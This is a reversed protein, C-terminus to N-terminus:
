ILADLIQMDETAIEFDFVDANEEIRSKRTSKPIVAVDHELCWRIMIQAATKGYKKAIACIAPDELRAGRTLPSYAEVVIDNARCCKLIEQEFDFPSFRIQDVAPHIRAYELLKEIDGIGYNSVGIARTKKNEYLKEMARWVSESMLPIPWHILYLDVYELHLRRLSEDLAEEPNGFDHPLLKTTVFIEERSIQSERIAKGVGEENRYLTATDIHRYGIELAIRIAAYAEEDNMKWTGLGLAPMLVGNKLTITHKPHSSM